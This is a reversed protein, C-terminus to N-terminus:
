ADEWESPQARGANDVRRLVLFYVVANVAVVAGSLLFQLERTLEAPYVLPVLYREVFSVSYGLDGGARRLVNELPTLPCVWGFLEVAAGWVVVPLHAWPMWRWRLALLGGFLVFVIFAVHVLIVLDALVTM